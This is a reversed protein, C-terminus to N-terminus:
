EDDVEITIIHKGVYWVNNGAGFYMTKGFSILNEDFPLIEETDSIQHLIKLGLQIPLSNLEWGSKKFVKDEFFDQIKNIDLEDIGNCITNWDDDSYNLHYLLGNDAFAIAYPNPDGMRGNDAHTAVICATIEKQIM